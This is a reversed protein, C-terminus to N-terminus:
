LAFWGLDMDDPTLVLWSHKAVEHRTTPGLPLVPPLDGRRDTPVSAVLSIVASPAAVSIVDATMAQDLQQPTWVCSVTEYVPAHAVTWGRNSLGDALEPRMSVAGVLVAHGTPYPLEEVLTAANARSPVWVDDVGRLQLAQATVQGVAVVHSSAALRQLVDPALEALSRVGNASTFFVTVSPDDLVSWDVSLDDVITVTTLPLEIVDHGALQLLSTWELNAGAPRTLAVRM